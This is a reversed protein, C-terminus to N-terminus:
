KGLIALLCDVEPIPADPYWGLTEGIGQVAGWYTVALALGDGGRFAGSRQGKRILPLSLKITDVSAVKRKVKSPISAQTKIQNILLFLNRSDESRYARLIIGTIKEFAAVPEPDNAFLGAVVAVSEMARSALALLIDEKAAFYHFLLGNSTGTAMSIDRVTTGSYGKEVFLRLSASLIGQRRKENNEERPGGMLGGLFENLM